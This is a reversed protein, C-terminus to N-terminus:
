NPKKIHWDRDPVLYGNEVKAMQTRHASSGKPPKDQKEISRAYVIAAVFFVFQGESPFIQKSPQNNKTPAQNSM